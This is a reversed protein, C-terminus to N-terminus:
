VSNFQEDSYSSTNRTLIFPVRPAKLHIWKAQLKSQETERLCVLACDNNRGTDKRQEGGKNRRRADHKLRPNFKEAQVVSSDHRPKCPSLIPDQWYTWLCVEPLRAFVTVKSCQLVAGLIM